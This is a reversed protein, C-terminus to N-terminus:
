GSRTRRDPSHRLSRIARPRSSRDLLGTSFVPRSSRDLLGTSFVPRSSRDLLGTSFVYGGHRGILENLVADHTQLSASMEGEGTAWLRTSGEVDTFLFTVTGSPIM